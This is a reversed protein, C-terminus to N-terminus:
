QVCRIACMFFVISNSKCFETAFNVPFCRLWLKKKLLITPQHKGTFKAFNRLVAKKCFVELHSSRVFRKIYTRYM